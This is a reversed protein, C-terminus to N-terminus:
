SCSSFKFSNNQTKLSGFKQGKGTFIGPLLEKAYHLNNFENCFYILMTNKILM